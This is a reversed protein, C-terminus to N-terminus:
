GLKAVEQRHVFFDASKKCAPKAGREDPKYMIFSAASYLNQPVEQGNSGILKISYSGAPVIKTVLSSIQNGELFAPEPEPIEDWPGDLKDNTFRVKTPAYGPIDNYGISVHRWCAKKCYYLDSAQALKGKVCGKTLVNEGQFGDSVFYGKAKKIGGSASLLNMKKAQFAVQRHDLFVQDTGIKVDVEDFTIKQLATASPFLGGVYQFRLAITDHCVQKKSYGQFHINKLRIGPLGQYYRVFDVGSQFSIGVAPHRNCERQNELEGVFTTKEMWIGEIQETNVGTDRIDVFLSDTLLQNNGDNMRWGIISSWGFFQTLLARKLPENPPDYTAMCTTQSHASNRQFRGFNTRSPDVNRAAPLNVRKSLGVVEDMSEYWFGFRPGGAAINGVMDNAPSAMWFTAPTDDSQGTILKIANRTAIGVNNEFVNNKEVGDETMYCHGATRFAINEKIKVGNSAHIVVCRQQSHHISNHSLESQAGSDGAFHIHLPYLGTLGAQGLGILEVGRVVQKEASHSMIFHGGLVRPPSTDMWSDLNFSSDFGQIQINRTLKVVEPSLIVTRKSSNTLKVSRVPLATRLAANGAFSIRSRSSSVRQVAAITFYESIDNENGLEVPALAIKDGVLFSRSVDSDVVISTAGPVASEALRVFTPHTTQVGYIQISGGYVAIAKRRFNITAGFNSNGSENPVVLDSGSDTLTIVLKSVFPRNASGIHFFGRVLIYATTVLTTVSPSGDQVSIQGEVVIGNPFLLSSGAPIFVNSGCPILLPRGAPAPLLTDISAPAGSARSCSPAVQGYSKDVAAHAGNILLLLACAAFLMPFTSLSGM